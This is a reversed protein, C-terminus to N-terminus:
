IEEKLLVGNVQLYQRLKDTFARYQEETFDIGIDLLFEPIEM